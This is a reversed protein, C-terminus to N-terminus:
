AYTTTDGSLVVISLAPTAGTKLCKGGLTLEIEGGEPKPAVDMTSPDIAVNPTTITATRTASRTFVQTMSAYFVGSDPATGTAPTASGYIAKRFKLLTDDTTISKWSRTIVGKGEILQLPTVSDGFFPKMQTDVDLHAETIESIVTGDVSFSGTAETHLYPTSADETKAWDTAFTKAASLAQIDLTGKLVKESFTSVLSMKAIKADTYLAREPGVTSGVKQAWSGWGGSVGSSSITHTWPDASGTVVDVGLIQACYLGLNEPQMQLTVSGVEGGVMEVYMSPSAFRQGDIYEQSGLSKNSNLHGTEWKPRNYGVTTTSATAPTGKASQRGFNLSGIGSEIAVSM